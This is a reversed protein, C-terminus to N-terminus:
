VYTLHDSSENQVSRSGYKEKYRAVVMETIRVAERGEDETVPPPSGGLISEVFREIMFNTGLTNWGLAARVANAAVSEVEQFVTNLASGAIPAYRLEQLSQRVVLMRETDIRLM